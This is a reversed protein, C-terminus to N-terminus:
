RYFIEKHFNIPNVNIDKPETKERHKFTPTSKQITVELHNNNIENM